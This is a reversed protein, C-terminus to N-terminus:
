AAAEVYELPESRALRDAVSKNRVSEVLEARQHNRVAWLEEDPTADTASRTEPDASRPMWCGGLHRDLLERMAPGVWTPVHVGNTVHGIPVEEVPRGPWLGQWMDRAVEGHRRSVGNAARSTRLAFQTVGFPEHPADPRPRGLRAIDEGEIGM